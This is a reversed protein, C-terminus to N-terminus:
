AAIDGSGTADTRVGNVSPLAIAECDTSEDVTSAESLDLPSGVGDDMLHAYVTLTFSPSAHGLFRSVQVITRGDAILMSACTHRFAHFGIDPVGAKTAAPKLVRRWINGPVLPTGERSAFVPDEDRPYATSDRLESLELVLSHPLPVNRRSRKSKPPGVSGRVIRQRVMVCSDSGTLRLHRWELGIAESIRLGTTALLTFFCHWDAPVEKLFADLQERTLAKSAQEDEDHVIKAQVPVDIQVAPNFRIVGDRAATSFCSRLPACIARITAPALQRKQEREDALWKVFANVKATTVDSMRIRQGFFPVIYSDIQRSYDARTDERFGRGGRGQYSKIWLRIYAALTERSREQHEGRDLDTRTADRARRAADLTRFGSKWRQKGTSDRYTFLYRAGRKYVGAVSSKTMKDAM